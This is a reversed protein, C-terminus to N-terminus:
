LPRTLRVFVNRGPRLLRLPDVHARYARNFVNDIGVQVTTGLVPAGGRLHAIGYGPAVQEGADQAIRDQRAAVSWEVEVWRARMWPSSLRLALLGELPPTVALPTGTALNEGHTWTMTSRLTAAASLAVDASASMGQLRANAVNAYERVPRGSVSDGVALRPAILDSLANRFLTVSAGTRGRETLGDWALTAELNRSRESSLTPSGRYIFGDPRLAVGYLETPDPVRYGFGLSTRAAFGHPLVARLGVNGTGVSEDSSTRDDARRSVRDVRVGGTAALRSTLDVEGQSFAGLDSMRVAPWTRLVVQSVPTTAGSGSVRLSENWRTAEADWLTADLGLDVRARSAPLLRVQARGGSTTSHSRADTLSRMTMPMGGTGTMPMSMDITMHHDLRQVYARAAFADVVGRGVQWGYDTAFQLRRELPIAAGAMAPWGIDRGEYLTSQLAIRQAPTPALGLTAAFNGDRYSSGDVRGVGSRYDGFSAVDATVMADVRGRRGGLAGGLTAGPVASSGGLRLEGNWGETAPPRRTVVNIVGGVNGSGYLTSGPGSLVEVREVSGAAVTSLGQDMGFTCARNLRAGDVMVTLREGGLGRLLARSGWEGMRQVALGEVGELREALSSGGREGVATRFVAGSSLASAAGLDTGRAAVVVENLLTPQPELEITGGALRAMLVITRFGLRQLTITTTDTPADIAFRGLSDTAVARLAATVRVGVVPLKSDAHRVEGTVRLAQADLALPAAVLAIFVVRRPAWRPLLSM